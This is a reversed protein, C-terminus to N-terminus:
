LDLGHMLAERQHKPSEVKHIVDENGMKFAMLRAEDTILDRDIDNENMGQIHKILVAGLSRYRKLVFENDYDQSSLKESLCGMLAAWSHDKSGIDRAMSKRIVEMSQPDKAIALAQLYAKRECHLEVHMTETFDGDLGAKAIQDRDFDILSSHIWIQENLTSMWKAVDNALFMYGKKMARKLVHERLYTPQEGILPETRLWQALKIRAYREPMCGLASLFVGKGLGIHSSIAESLQDFISENLLSCIQEGQRVLLSNVKIMIARSSVMKAILASVHPQHASDKGFADVMFEATVDDPNFYGETIEKHRAETKM